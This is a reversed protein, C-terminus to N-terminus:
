KARTEVDQIVFTVIELGTAAMQEGSIEQVKQAFEEQDLRIQETLLLGIIMKTHGTLIEQAIQRIEDTSKSMLQIAATRISNIDSGIKVQAAATISVSGDDKTKIHRLQIPISILELSLTDVREVVPWVFSRGGTVIRPSKERGSIILVENPGVKRVHTIYVLLLAGISAFM